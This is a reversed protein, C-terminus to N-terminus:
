VRFENIKRAGFLCILGIMLLSFTNPLPVPSVRDSSYINVLGTYNPLSAVIDRSFDTVGVLSSGDKFTIASSEAFIGNTVSFSQGINFLNGASLLAVIDLSAVLPTSATFTPFIFPELSALTKGSDDLKLEYFIQKGDGWKLAWITRIKKEEELSGLSIEVKGDKNTDDKTAFMDMKGDGNTDWGIEPRTGPDTTITILGAKAPHAAGVLIGLAVVLQLLWFYLGRGSRKENEFSNTCM